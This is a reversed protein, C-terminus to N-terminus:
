RPDCGSFTGDSNWWAFRMTRSTQPGYIGDVTIGHRRQVNRVATATRPGYIGDVTLGQQYCRNLSRQLERTPTGANGSGLTCNLSTGRAPVRAQAAYFPRAVYVLGTCTGVAASAPLPNVLASVATCTLVALVPVIKKMM